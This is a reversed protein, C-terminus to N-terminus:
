DRLLRRTGEATAGFVLHSALAYAHISLPYEAPRKALGLAPVVGEDIVLWFATGFALGFGSTVEPLFESAVGYVIGATAGVAYHVAAGAIQKESPALRHGFLKESVTSAAKVTAPDEADGADSQRHEAESKNADESSSVAFWVDQFRDMTWSAALGAVFGVLIGKLVSPRLHRDSM